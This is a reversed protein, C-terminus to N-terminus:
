RPWTMEATTDKRHSSLSHSNNPSSVQDLLQSPSSHSKQFKIWTFRHLTNILVTISASPVQFYMKSQHIVKLKNRTQINATTKSYSANQFNTSRKLCSWIPLSILHTLVQSATHCACLERLGLFVVSDLPLSTPTVQGRELDKKWNKLWREKWLRLGVFQYFLYSSIVHTDLENVFYWFPLSKM